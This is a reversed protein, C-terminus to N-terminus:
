SRARRRCSTAARARAAAPEVAHPRAHELAVDLAAVVGVPEGRQVHRHRLDVGIGPKPPSHWRSAFMTREASGATGSARADVQQHDLVDAVEDARGLEADALIRAHHDGRDGLALVLRELVRQHEAGALQHQDVLDVQEVCRSKSRSFNRCWRSATCGPTARISTLARVPSPTSPTGRSAPRAARAGPPARKFATAATASRRRSAFAAHKAATALPQGPQALSMASRNARPPRSSAVPPTSPSGARPRRTRAGPSRRCAPAAPSARPSPPRACSASRASGSSMTMANPTSIARVVGPQRM